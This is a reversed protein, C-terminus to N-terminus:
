LELNVIALEFEREFINAIDPEEKHIDKILPLYHLITEETKRRRKELTCGNLTRCNHLRDALKVLKVRFSANKIQDHYYDLRAQKSPFKEKDIPPMSTGVVIDVTTQSAFFKMRLEDLLYSDELMDHM